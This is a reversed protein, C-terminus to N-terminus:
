VGGLRGWIVECEMLAPDKIKCQVLTFMKELEKVLACKMIVFDTAAFDAQRIAGTWWFKM